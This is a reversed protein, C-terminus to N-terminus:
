YFLYKCGLLLFQLMEEKQLNTEATIYDHKNGTQNRLPCEWKSNEFIRLHLNDQLEFYNSIDCPYTILLESEEFWDPSEFNCIGLTFKSEKKTKTSHLFSEYNINKSLSCLVSEFSNSNKIFESNNKMMTGISYIYSPLLDLEQALHEYNKESLIAHIIKTALETPDKLFQEFHNKYKEVFDTINSVSFNLNKQIEEISLEKANIPKCLLNQFVDSTASIKTTMKTPM